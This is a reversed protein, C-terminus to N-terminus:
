DSGGGRALAERSFPIDQVSSLISRKCSIHVRPMVALWIASSNPATDRLATIPLAWRRPRWDRGDGTFGFSGCGARPAGRAAAAASGRRLRFRDIEGGGGRQLHVPSGGKSRDVLRRLLAGVRGRRRGRRLRQDARDARAAEHALARAVLLRRDRGRRRAPQHGALGLGSIASLVLRSSRLSFIQLHGTPCGPSGSKVKAAVRGIRAERIADLMAADGILRLERAAVALGRGGQWEATRPDPLRRVPARCERSLFPAAGCPLGKETGTLGPDSASTRWPACATCTSNRSAAAFDTGNANGLLFPNTAPTTGSNVLRVVSEDEFERYLYEVGISFNRGFKQEAGIGVVSGVAEDDLGNRNV